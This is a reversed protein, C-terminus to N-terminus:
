AWSLIFDWSTQKITLSSPPFSFKYIASLLV